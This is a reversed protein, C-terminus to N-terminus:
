EIERGSVRKYANELHAGLVEPHVGNAQATAVVDEIMKVLGIEDIIRQQEHVAARIREPIESDPIGGDDKMWRQVTRPAVELFRAFRSTSWGGFLTTLELHLFKAM